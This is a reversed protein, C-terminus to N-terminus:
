KAGDQGHQDQPQAPEHRAAAPGGVYGATLREVYKAVV